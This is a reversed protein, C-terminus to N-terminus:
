EIFLSSYRYRDSYQELANDAEDLTAYCGLLQTIDDDNPDTAKFVVRRLEYLETMTLWNIRYSYNANDILFDIIPNDISEICEVIDDRNAFSMYEIGLSSLDHAFSAPFILSFM